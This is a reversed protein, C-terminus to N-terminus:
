NCLVYAQNDMSNDHLNPHIRELENGDYRHKYIEKLLYKREIEFSGLIISCCYIHLLSTRLLIM